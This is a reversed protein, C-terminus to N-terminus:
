AAARPRGRRPAPRRPAPPPEIQADALVAAGEKLLPGIAAFLVDLQREVRDLRSEPPEVDADGFFTGITTGFVIALAQLNDDSPRHRDAEWRSIDSGTLKAGTLTNVEAAVRAQTWTSDLAKLADRQERIRSGITAASQKPNMSLVIVAGLTHTLRM